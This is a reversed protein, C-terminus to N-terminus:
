AKSVVFIYKLDSSGTNIVNHLTEPPNYAVEGKSLATPEAGEAKVTGSGELVIILEENAHTSHEGIEMGPKLTVFGSKMKSANVASLLEFYKEGDTLKKVFPKLSNKEMTNNM